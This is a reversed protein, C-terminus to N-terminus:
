KTIQFFTDVTALLEDIRKIIKWEMELYLQENRFIIM